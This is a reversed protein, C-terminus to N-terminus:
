GRRIECGHLLAEVTALRRLAGGLELHPVAQQVEFNKLRCAVLQEDIDVVREVANPTLGLPALELLARQRGLSPHKVLLLVAGDDGCQPSAVGRSRALSQDGM